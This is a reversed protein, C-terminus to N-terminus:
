YYTDYLTTLLYLVIYYLMTSVGIIASNRLENSTQHEGHVTEVNTVFTPLRNSM